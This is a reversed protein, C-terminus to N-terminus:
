AFCVCNISSVWEENEGAHLQVHLGLKEASDLVADCGHWGCHHKSLRPRSLYLARRGDEEKLRDELRANLRAAAAPIPPVLVYAYNRRSPSSAGKKASLAMQEEVDSTEIVQEASDERIGRKWRDAARQSSTIWTPVADADETARQKGKDQWSMRRELGLLGTPVFEDVMEADHSDSSDALRNGAPTYESPSGPLFLPTKPSSMAAQQPEPTRPKSSPAAVPASDGADDMTLDIVSTRVSEEGDDPQQAASADAAGVDQVPATSLEIVPEQSPFVLTVSNLALSPIQQAETPLTMAHLTENITRMDENLQEHRM